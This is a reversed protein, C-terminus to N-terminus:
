PNAPKDAEARLRAREALYNKLADQWSRLPEFGLLALNRCEFVSNPPRKAPAGYEKATVSELSVTMDAQRFIERAFELWTCGGTNSLHYTGYQDTKALRRIIGAADLTYTPSLSEDCVIRLPTGKSGLRLMAEVFNTGKMRSPTLGFLGSVRVIFHKNWIYRIFQEGALKTIGYSNVPGTADDEIYPSNKRGDFVYNTSIHLLPIDWRKCALALNRPGLANVAFAREQERECEDVRTFAASNIVLDPATFAVQQQVLAEDRIDLDDSTYATTQCDSFATVLDTGLQGRSGIILVRM